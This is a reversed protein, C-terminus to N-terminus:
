RVVQVAQRATEFLDAQAKIGHAALIQIGEEAKTGCMRVSLPVQSPNKKLYADIGEAVQDMRTLGGILSILLSKVRSNAMVIEMAQEAAEAAAKGGMECFNAPKGGLDKVLDLTLMGTGAGDAIIGIDGNLLVYSIDYQEALVEAHSRKKVIRGAQEERLKRMQERLRYCANDDLIIKGDLAYLGQNTIALPNIEVLTADQNRLINWVGQVVQKFQEDAPIDLDAALAQIDYDMLGVLPDIRKRLIKHPSEKALQEIDVGGEKSAVLMPRNVEKDNLCCLYIEQRIDVAEEALLTKIRYGKVEKDLLTETQSRAEALDHVLKVAGAKGRGGVPIQAKLVVPYSLGELDSAREVMQSSPIPIGNQAM